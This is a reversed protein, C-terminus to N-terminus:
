ADRSRRFAWQRFATFNFLVAATEALVKGVLPDLRLVKCFIALLGETLLLSAFFVAVFRLLEGPIPDTSRFTFRRNLLYCTLAGLPRSVLHAVLPDIGGSRTLLAFISFDTAFSGLGCVLYRAFAHGTTM